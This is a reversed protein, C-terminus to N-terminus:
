HGRQKAMEDMAKLRAANEADARNAQSAGIAGGASAKAGEPMDQPLQDVSTPASQAAKHATDVNGSNEGCGWLISTFAIAILLPKM